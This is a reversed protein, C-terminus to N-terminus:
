MIPEGHGVIEHGVIGHGVIGHSPRGDAIVTDPMKEPM